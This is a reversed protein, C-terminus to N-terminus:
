NDLSKGCKKCVRHKTDNKVQMGIRVGIKCKDCFYQVNSIQVPKELSIVGGKPNEQSPRIFKKKKNIGEIVIKGTKRDVELVKGSRGREIGTIVVVNDNKKIRTKIM